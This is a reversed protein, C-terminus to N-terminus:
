CFEVFRSIRSNWSGEIFPRLIQLGASVTLLLAIAQRLASRQMCVGIALSFWEIKMCKARHVQGCVVRLREQALATTLM